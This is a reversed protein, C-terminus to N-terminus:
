AKRYHSNFVIYKIKDFAWQGNTPSNGNNQSGSPNGLLNSNADIRKIANSRRVIKKIGLGGVGCRIFYGRNTIRDTSEALCHRRPGIISGYVLSINAVSRGAAGSAVVLPKGIFFLLNGHSLIRHSKKVKPFEPQM